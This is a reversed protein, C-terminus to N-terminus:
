LSANKSCYEILDARAICWNGEVDKWAPLKESRILSYITLYRMSFIDAIERISLIAPLNQLKKELIDSLMNM